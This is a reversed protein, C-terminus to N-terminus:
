FMRRHTQIQAYTSTVNDEGLVLPHTLQPPTSTLYAMSKYYKLDDQFTAKSSPNSLHLACSWNALSSNPLELESHIVQKHQVLQTM